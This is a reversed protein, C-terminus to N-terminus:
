VEHKWYYLPNEDGSDWVDYYNGDKVCVVHNSMSLIYTGEPNDNCFDKVSYDAPLDTPIIHRRFGINYLYSGWVENADMVNGLRFGEFAVALYTYEWDDGTAKCIARITCDGASKTRNRPNPNFYVYM